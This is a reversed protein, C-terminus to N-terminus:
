EAPEKLRMAAGAFLALAVASGILTAVGAGIVGLMPMLVFLAVFLATTGAMRIRLARAAHGTALLFPEFGVVMIDLGAAIGLLVLIPYVGLYSKGAVLHLIPGSVLPVLLCTVLGAAVALRTSQRVLTRYNARSEGDTRAVEPFVGRSFMDSVRVLSQSLQYALRYNGAAAAGTFYGVLVVVFQRSAANLTSNGNTVVAFKWLGINERPAAMTGRWGRLIHPASRIATVWYVVATLVESVAWTILFGSVGAHLFVAVIAGAFRVISTVSDSAAGTAFRDHLRLVGVATSRISLLVVICFALAEWTLETSWGFRARMVLLAVGAIGCGVVAAALDLAACFRVLRGLADTRAAALHGMGYRVVIQWTQFGVLAAAAQGISVILMFEGFRQMGLSRTALALYVLSLVAGVGKGGLLWGVNRLARGFPTPAPAVPAPAPASM